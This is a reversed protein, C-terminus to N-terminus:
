ATWVCLERSLLNCLTNLCAFALRSLVAVDFSGPCCHLVHSVLRQFLNCVVQIFVAECRRLTAFPSTVLYASKYLSVVALIPWKPAKKQLNIVNLRSDDTQM